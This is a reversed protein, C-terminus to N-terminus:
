SKITSPDRPPIAEHADETGMTEIEEIGIEDDVTNSECGVFAVALVLLAFLTKFTKM